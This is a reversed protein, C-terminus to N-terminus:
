LVENVMWGYFDFNKGEHWEMDSTWYGECQSYFEPVFGFSVETVLLTDTESSIFDVALSQSNMKSYIEFALKVCGNPIQDKAFINNHSGSARFDNERVMRKMAFAKNNVLCVRIDYKNNPIFDQFYVYGKDRAFM